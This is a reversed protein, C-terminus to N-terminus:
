LHIIPFLIVWASKIGSYQRELSSYMRNREVVELGPDSLEEFIIYLLCEYAKQKDGLVYYKYYEAKKDQYRNSKLAKKIKSVNSCLVFFCILAIVGIVWEIFVFIELTSNDM